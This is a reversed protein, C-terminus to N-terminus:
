GRHLKSRHAINVRFATLWSWPIPMIPCVQKLETEPLNGTLSPLFKRANEEDAHCDHVAEWAGVRVERLHFTNSEGEQTPVPTPMQGHPADGVFGIIEGDLDNDIAESPAAHPAFSHFLKSHQETEHLGLFVSTEDEQMM